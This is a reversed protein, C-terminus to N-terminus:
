DANREREILFKFAASLVLAAEKLELMDSGYLRNEDDDGSRDKGWEIQNLAPGLQPTIDLVDSLDSIDQEGDRDRVPKGCVVGFSLASARQEGFSPKYDLEQKSKAIEEDTLDQSRILLAVIYDPADRGQECAIFSALVMTDEEIQARPAISVRYSYGQAIMKALAMRIASDFIPFVVQNWAEDDTGRASFQGSFM